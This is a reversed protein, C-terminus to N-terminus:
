FLAPPDTHNWAAWAQVIAIMVPRANDSDIAGFLGGDRDLDILLYAGVGPNGGSHFLMRHGDRSVHIFHGLGMQTDGMDLPKGDVEFETKMVPRALSDLWAPQLIRSEGRRIRGYEVLLKAMDRATTVLGAAAEGVCRIPRVPEGHEDYGAAARTPPGYGSDKMGLPGLLETQMLDAIPMGTADQAALQLLTYGGGSYSWRAGPDAILEVKGRDGAKGSLVEAETPRASDRAFCPVSLMSLGATHSLLRRPTVGDPDFAAPPLKWSKLISATPADLPLKGDQVLRIWALSFVLKSVSAVGIPTSDTMPLGSERDALGYGKALRVHGSEVLAVAAGPANARHLAAPVLTDLVAGFSPTAPPQDPKAACAALLVATAAALRRGRGPRAAGVASWGSPLRVLIPPGVADDSPSGFRRPAAAPWALTVEELTGPLGDATRDM